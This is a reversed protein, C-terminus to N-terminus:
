AIIENSNNWTFNKWLLAYSMPVQTFYFLVWSVRQLDKRTNRIFNTSTKIDLIRSITESYVNTSKLYHFIKKESWLNNLQLTPLQKFAKAIYLRLFHLNKKQVPGEHISLVSGLGMRGIWKVVRLGQILMAQYFIAKAKFTPCIKSM